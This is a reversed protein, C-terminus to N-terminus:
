ELRIKEKMQAFLLEKLQPKSNLEGINNQMMVSNKNGKSVKVEFLREIEKDLKHM